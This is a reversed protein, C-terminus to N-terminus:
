EGDSLAAFALSVMHANIGHGMAAEIDLSVTAGLARLQKAANRSHDAPLVTDADGHILHIATGAPALTPAAAFRGSFAIVHAALAPEHQTSELAMIAGQSFGILTTRAAAVGSEQQWQAVLDRFDPMAAAVRACRSEETIGAISFWQRGQGFDSAQLGEVSAV